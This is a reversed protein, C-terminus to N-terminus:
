EGQRGAWLTITFADPDMAEVDRGHLATLTIANKYITVAWTSGDRNDIKYPACLIQAVDTNPKTPWPRDDDGMKVELIADEGDIFGDLEDILTELHNLVKDGGFMDIVDTEDHIIPCPGADKDYRNVAETLAQRIEHSSPRSQM